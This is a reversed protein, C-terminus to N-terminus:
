WLDYEGERITFLVNCWYFLVDINYLFVSGDRNEMLGKEEEKSMIMNKDNIIVKKTDYGLVGGEVHKM